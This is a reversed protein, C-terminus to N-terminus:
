VDFFNGATERYILSSARFVLEGEVGRVAM